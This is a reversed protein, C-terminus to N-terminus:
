ARCVLIKPVPSERVVSLLNKDGRERARSDGMFESRWWRWRGDEIGVESCAFAENGDGSCAVAEVRAESRMMAMRKRLGNVEVGGGEFRTVAMGQRLGNIILVDISHSCDNM